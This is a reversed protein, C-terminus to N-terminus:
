DEEFELLLDLSADVAGAACVTRLDQHVQRLEAVTAGLNLAGRLHARVQPAVEMPVLAGITAIERWMPAIGRAAYM